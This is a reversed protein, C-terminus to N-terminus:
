TGRLNISQNPQITCKGIGVNHPGPRIDALCASPQRMYLVAAFVCIEKVRVQVPPTSIRASSGICTNAGTSTLIVRSARSLQDDFSASQNSKSKSM